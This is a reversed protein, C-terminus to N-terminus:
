CNSRYAKSMNGATFIEANHREDFGSSVNDLLMLSKKSGAMKVPDSLLRSLGGALRM